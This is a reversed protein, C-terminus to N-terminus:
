TKLGEAISSTIDIMGQFSTREQARIEEAAKILFLGISILKGRLPAPLSNETRGLDEIFHCWLRTVFFIAETAERSGMGAKEASRMMEISQLLIQRESLRNERWSDAATESYAFRFM